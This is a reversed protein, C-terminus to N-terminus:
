IICVNLSHCDLKELNFCDTQIADNPLMTPDSDQLTSQIHVGENALHDAVVNPKRKLM